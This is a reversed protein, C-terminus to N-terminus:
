REGLIICLTTYYRRSQMVQSNSPTIDKWSIWDVGSVSNYIKGAAGVVYAHGNSGIAVGNLGSTSVLKADSFTIGDPSTFVYGSPSSSSSTGTALHHANSQFSFHAIDNLLYAITKTTTPTVDTWTIGSDTTRQIAGKTAGNGVTVCTTSSSWVAAVYDFGTKVALPSSSAWSSGRVIAMASLLLIVPYFCRTVAIDNKKRTM